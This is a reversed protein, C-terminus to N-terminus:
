KKNEPYLVFKMFNKDDLYKRAADRIDGPKLSEIMEPQKLFLGPTDNMLLDRYLHSVWYYNRKLNVEFERRDTEKIKVMNSDTPLNDQMDKIQEKVAGILEDVRDPSCGFIIHVHYESKPYKSVQPFVGVGYVGGKDERLVERLKISMIDCMSKIDFRNKYNWDFKGSYILRVYSKAEIGKYVDRQVKGKPYNRGVDKWTENRHTAPLNALYVKAFEKLKPVDINGVFIFTFDSADAFRDYYIDFIKDEDLKDLDKVTLPRATYHYGSSIYNVSDRFVGEPSNSANEILTKQQSKFSNLAEIDVRAETFYLYILQFLTEFDGPSASGRFGESLEFIFPSLNVVKGSLLKQLKTLNMDGIGSMDIVSAAWKANLYDNPGYLSTGGPSVAYMRIEDNKFDTPKYWVKVGNSLTLETVGLDDIKRENTIKGPAPKKSMLPKDSVEDVYAKYDKKGANMFVNLVEDKSPVKIEKKEPASVTIVNNDPKIFVDSLANVTNVDIDPLWLKYLEMEAEIGPISEDDTFNRMYEFAFAQSETKDKEALAQEFFRLKDKKARELETKTFGHQKIRYLEAMLTKEAELFKGNKPIAMVMFVRTKGLFIGENSMAYLYPADPKRSIEQLRNNLMTTYLRAIINKRYDDYDGGKRGPLKSYITIMPYTLEKDSAVSVLTEKHYPLTYWTRERENEPNKLTSFKEKILKEMDDINFDGVAIVAMLDPRYWDNYFRTFNERPAHLIVNTDGIVDREVYRSNYYLVKDHVKSIRDQAGKGLRWEELIVGREKEIEKPDFLLNGAWDRIVEVGKLVLDQKDTPLQLMYITKDYSTFANLDAGFKVGTSELFNVLDNKPFHKTGNFAMHETFHALGNQDDDELVAGVKTALIIEMRKEPKKNVKIYYTMGNSLKGYRIAKDMPIKAKLDTVKISQAQLSTFAFIFALLIILLSKQNHKM